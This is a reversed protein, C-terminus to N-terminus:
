KCLDKFSKAFYQRTDKFQKKIDLIKYYKVKYIKNKTDKWKWKM